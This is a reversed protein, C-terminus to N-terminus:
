AHAKRAQRVIEAQRRREHKPDPRHGHYPLAGHVVPGEREAQRAQQRNLKRTAALEEDTETTNM